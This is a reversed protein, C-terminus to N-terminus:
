TSRSAPRIAEYERKAEVLPKLDPDANKWIELFWEYNQRASDLDGTLVQARAMGLYALPYLPSFPAEGRHHLIKNFEVVAEPGKKMKLYALGRIYQIRFESASEFGSQVSQLKDIAGPFNGRQYEIAAEVLPKTLGNVYTSNPRRRIMEDLSARAGQIDGCMADVLPSGRNSADTKACRGFFVNNVGRDILFTNAPGNADKGVAEKEARTLFEAGKGAQGLYFSRYGRYANAWFSFRRDEIIRLQAEFAADDRDIFALQVLLNRMWFGDYGEELGQQVAARAEDYRGLARLSNAYTSYVVIAGKEIGATAEDIAKEYRGSSYNLEAAMGHSLYDRPFLKKTMEAAEIAKDWEGTGFRYYVQDIQLREFEPVQERMEFAKRAAAASLVPQQNNGYYQSLFRYAMAFEPDIETAKIVFNIAQPWNGTRAERRALTLMKLAELSSTTVEWPLIDPGKISALSEGLTARIGAAAIALARLVQEKSEAEEQRSAVVETTEANVAELSIVYKEGLKFISGVIYAKLGQRQCIERALERTIREDPPRKMLKLTSQIREESVQSLFPSQLLQISLGQRLTGDFIEDGTKNEFDAILIVDKDTLIPATIRVVLFYIAVSILMIAGFGMLAIALRRRSPSADHFVVNQAAAEGNNLKTEASELGERPWDALTIVNGTTGERLAVDQRQDAFATFQAMGALAPQSPKTTSIVNGNFRYGRRRFTEIFASGDAQAGLTSRLVHIYRSLNSEEVIADSWIAEILENKSVIQGQRGVLALLTEIAKPPLSIEEGSRYLMLESSDLRFDGFEYITHSNPKAEM